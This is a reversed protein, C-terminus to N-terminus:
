SVKMWGPPVQCADSAWPGASSRNDSTGQGPVGHGHTSDELLTGVPSPGWGRSHAARAARQFQDRRRQWWWQVATLLWQRGETCRRAPAQPCWGGAGAPCRPRHPAARPKNGCCDPIDEPHIQERHAQKRGPLTLAVSSPLTAKIAQKHFSGQQFGRSCFRQWGWSPELVRRGAGHGAM